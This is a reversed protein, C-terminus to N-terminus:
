RISDWITVAMAKILKLRRTSYARQHVGDGVSFYGDPKIGLFYLRADLDFESLGLAAALDKQLVYSEPQSVAQSEILNLHEVLNSEALDLVKAAREYYKKGSVM